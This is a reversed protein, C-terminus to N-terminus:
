RMLNLDVEIFGRPEIRAIRLRRRSHSGDEVMADVDLCACNNKEVRRIDLHGEYGRALGAIQPELQSHLARLLMQLSAVRADEMHMGFNVLVGARDVVPLQKLQAVLRDEFESVTRDWLIAVQEGM